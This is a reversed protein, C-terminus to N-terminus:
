DLKLPNRHKNALYYNFIGQKSFQMEKYAALFKNINSITQQYGNKSLEKIIEDETLKQEYLNDTEQSQIFDIVGQDFEFFYNFIEQQYPNWLSFLYHQVIEFDLYENLNNYIYKMIEELLKESEEQLQDPHTNKLNKVRSEFNEINFATDSNAQDLSDDMVDDLPFYDNGKIVNVLGSILDEFDQYRSGEFWERLTDETENIIGDRLLEGYEQNSCSYARSVETIGFEHTSYDANLGYVLATAITLIM